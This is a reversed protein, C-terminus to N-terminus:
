RSLSRKKCIILVRYNIMRMGREISVCADEVEGSRDMIEVSKLKIKNKKKKLNKSLYTKERYNLFSEDASVFFLVYNFIIKSGLEFGLLQILRIKFIFILRNEYM